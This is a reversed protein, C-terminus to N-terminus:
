VTLTIEGSIFTSLSKQSIDKFPQTYSILNPGSSSVAFTYSMNRLIRHWHTGHHPTISIYFRRRERRILESAIEKIETGEIDGWFLFRNDECLVLGLHNAAKNLSRNAVIVSTPLSREKPPPVRSSHENMQQKDIEGSEKPWLDQEKVKVQDYIRRTEADDELATKFDRIGKEVDALIKKESIRPPPWLVELSSGNINITEGKSLPRYFLKGRNLKGLTNLFDAERVGTGSGFLRENIAYLCDEFERRQKFEPLRPFYACKLDYPQHHQNAFNLAHILGNYHDGHFHSLIFYGVQGLSRFIRNMGNFADSENNRSGCDIQIVEGFLTGIGLCLGDGVDAVHISKM